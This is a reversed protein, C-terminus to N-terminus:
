ALPPPVPQANTTSPKSQPAQVAGLDMAVSGELGRPKTESVVRGLFAQVWNWIPNFKRPPDSMKILEGKLGEPLVAKLGLEKISDELPEHSLENYEAILAKLRLLASKLEKVDKSQPGGVVAARLLEIRQLTAPAIEYHIARWAEFGRVNPLSGGAQVSLVARLPDGATKSMLISYIEGSAKVVRDRPWELLEAAEDIFEEQLEDAGKKRALHLLKGLGPRADECHGVLLATWEAYAAGGGHKGLAKIGENAFLARDAQAAPASGSAMPAMAITAVKALADAATLGAQAVQQEAVAVRQALTDQGQSLAEVVSVRTELPVFRETLATQLGDHQTRLTTIDTRLGNILGELSDHAQLNEQIHAALANQTSVVLGGIQELAAALATSQDNAAARLLNAAQEVAPLSAM